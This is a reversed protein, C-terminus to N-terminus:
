RPFLPFFVSVSIGASKKGNEPSRTDKESSSDQLDSNGSRMPPMVPAM